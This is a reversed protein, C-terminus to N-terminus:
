LPRRAPIGVDRPYNAGTPAIKTIVVLTRPAVGPLDIPVIAHLRGGLQQLAHEATTAEEAIDAGKPALLRGEVRLLPLAYEALVRLEAVARATVIDYSEREQPDRGLREIRTHCVRVGDLRLQECIHNLFTAKKGVSEVLTLEIAPFAIKLALGPLGAGSGIDLMRQPPQRWGEVLSLSDLFHRLYIGARDRIATLNTQENWALLADAYAAFRELAQTDLAIGWADTTTILLNESPDSM